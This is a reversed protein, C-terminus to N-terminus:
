PKKPSVLEHKDQEGFFTFLSVIKFVEGDFDM